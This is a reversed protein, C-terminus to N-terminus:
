PTQAAVLSSFLRPSILDTGALAVGAGAAGLRKLRKFINGRTLEAGAKEGSGLMKVPAALATSIKKSEPVEGKM